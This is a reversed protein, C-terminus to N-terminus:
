KENKIIADFDDARSLKGVREREVIKTVAHV